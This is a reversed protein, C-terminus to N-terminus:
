YIPSYPLNMFYLNMTIFLDARGSSEWFLIRKVTIKYIEVGQTGPLSRFAVNQLNYEKFGGTDLKMALSSYYKQDWSEHPFFFGGIRLSAAFFLIIFFKLVM